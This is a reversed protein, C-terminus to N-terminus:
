VTVYFCCLAQTDRPAVPPDVTVTNLFARAIKITHGFARKLEKLAEAYNKGSNGLGSVLHKAEGRLHSQLIDM